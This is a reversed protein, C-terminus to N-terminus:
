LGCLCAKNLVCMSYFNYSHIIFTTWWMTQGYQCRIASCALSMKFLLAADSSQVAFITVVTQLM